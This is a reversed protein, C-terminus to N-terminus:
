ETERDHVIDIVAEDGSIRIRTGFRESDTALRELIARALDGRARRPLGRDGAADPRLDLPFLRVRRALGDEYEVHSVLGEYWNRPNGGRARPHDSRVTPPAGRHAETALEQRLEQSLFIDGTLLFVGVGYFVPCGRHIEIGRLAHPGGGVVVDAGAAIADHFLVPLFDAPAPNDDDPGTATEHAHISFVALDASAKADRVARLVAHRDIPDVEWTLGPVAARRYLRGGLSVEHADPTPPESRGFRERTAVGRIVDLEDDTVGTVPRVRLTSMGARPPMGDIADNAMASPIFTSATAVVALSTGRRELRVGRRAEALNRGGGAHEVGAEDLLRIAEIVGVPGWDTAHNNALTVVDIGLDILDTAVEPVMRLMANGVPELGPADASVLVGELNGITCDGARIIELVEHLGADTDRATPTSHLLDGVVGLTFSGALTSRPRDTDLIASDPVREGGIDLPHGDVIVHREPASAADSM